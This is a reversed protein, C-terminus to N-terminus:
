HAPSHSLLKYVGEAIGPDFRLRVKRNPTASIFFAIDNEGEKTAVAMSKEESFGEGEEAFFVQALGSAPSMIRGTVVMRGNSPVEIEPLEFYPDNSTANWSLVDGKALNSVNVGDSQSERMLKELDVIKEGLAIAGLLGIYPDNTRSSSGIMRESIVEVLCTPSINNNLWDLSHRNSMKGYHTLFSKEFHCVLPFVCANANLIGQQHTGRIYSDTLMVLNKGNKNLNVVYDPRFMAGEDKVPIEPYNKVIDNEVKLQDSGRLYMIPVNEKGWPPCDMLTNKINYPLNNEDVPIQLHQCIQKYAEDLGYGNWHVIDYKKNYVKRESEKLPDLMGLVNVSGDSFLSMFQEYKSVGHRNQAWNPLDGECVLPKDPVVVLLYKIGHQNCYAQMGAYSYKLTQLTGDSLGTFGMFGSVVPANSWEPFVEGNKGVINIGHTSQIYINARMYSELFMKRFPLTDNIWSETEKLLEDFKQGRLVPKQSLERQEYNINETIDGLNLDFIRLTIPTIAILLFVVPFIITLVRSTTKKM